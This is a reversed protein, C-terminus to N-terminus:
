FTLFELRRASNTEIIRNGDWVQQGNVWTGDISSAFQHGEFPSWKCLSLIGEKSVTYPKKDDLICLDAFYGERIYGREKIRFLIAPNHCMKEVMTEITLRGAQVQDFIAQTAFQVLPGGSPAQLYPQNKEEITHPAHDTAIVDIRGDLVAKWIGERDDKTKVAPNWKIY